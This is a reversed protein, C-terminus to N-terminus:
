LKRTHPNIYHLPLTPNLPTVFRMCIDRHLGPLPSSLFPAQISASPRWPGIRLATSLLVIKDRLLTPACPPCPPARLVYVNCFFALMHPKPSRWTLRSCHCIFSIWLPIPLTPSTLPTHSQWRQKPLDYAHALWVAAKPYYHQDDVVIPQGLLLCNRRNCGKCTLRRIGLFSM